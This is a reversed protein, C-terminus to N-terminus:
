LEEVFLVGPVERLHELIAERSGSGATGNKLLLTLEMCIVAGSEKGVENMESVHCGINRLERLIASFRIGSEYEVYVPLSSGSKIYMADLKNLSVLVIYLLACMIISAEYFGSGIALGMCASAWLGAATTLGRVQNRGTVIITGAGLFGIGSIVQAGLRAPDGTNFYMSLYQSTMMVSAAGICVLLHTRLGAAHQRRGRELGIIGSCLVALVFRLLISLLNLDRVNGFFELYTM